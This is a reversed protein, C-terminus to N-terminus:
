CREMVKQEAETRFSSRQALQALLALQFKHEGSSQLCVHSSHMSLTNLLHSHFLMDRLISGGRRRCTSRHSRTDRQAREQRDGADDDDGDDGGDGGDEGGAHAGIHSRMDRQARVQRNGAENFMILILIFITMIKVMENMGMVM